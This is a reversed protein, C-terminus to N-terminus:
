VLHFWKLLFPKGCAQQEKCHHACPLGMTREFVGSCSAPIEKKRLKEWCELVKDLAKPNVYDVVWEFLMIQHAQVYRIRSKELEYTHSKIQKLMLKELNDVVYKLDGTSVKLKQKLANYAGEVWSTSRHGFHLCNDTWAHCFQHKVPMWERELYRKLKTRDQAQFLATWKM